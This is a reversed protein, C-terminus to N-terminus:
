RRGSERRKRYEQKYWEVAEQYSQHPLAKRSFSLELEFPGAPAEIEDGAAEIPRGNARAEKLELFYPVHVVVREPEHRWEPSFRMRAWGESFSLEYSVKGFPTPAGTVKVADGPKAWQPSLASCLHLEGEEERVLMNRFLLNFCAAYWGHPPFNCLQYVGAEICYDRGDWPFISWEFGEHCSGTHLLMGYFDRVALEQEGRMLATQAIRETIYHHLSQQWMAIREKMRRRRVYEFTNSVLPDRPDMVRGPYVALLNGWDTGGPVDLGPPIVGGREAAVERLRRMFNQRYSEGLGRFAECRHGGGAAECLDAAASLGTLAWFNHGTYRGLIMENDFADTPPMLGWEDEELARELWGVAREVYPLAEEAFEEDGTYRVHTGLAWMAQGWGDLQGRQSVFNGDDRQYDFFHRCLKEAVEPQGWKEYMSVFFSSDRLWFRNYQFRNVHQEVENDSIIDQSMLAHIVYSRSAHVVKDESVEFRAGRDLWGEWYAEFAALREDFDAGALRDEMAAEAPYHPVAFDAYFEEGPGLGRQYLAICAPKDGRSVLFPRDYEKGPGQFLGDPKQGFAYIIRGGRLAARGTMRYRWFPSWKVQRMQPSRHDKIGYMFGGGLQATRPSASTNKASIRIFNVPLAGPSGGELPFQFARVTYTVGDREFSYQVCPLYGKYLTWIRQSVPEGAAFPVWEAAGTWLHGDVVQTAFPEGRIGLQISPRLFYSFVPGRDIAPDAMPKPLADMLLNILGNRVKTNLLDLPRARPRDAAPAGTLAFALLAAAASLGLLAHKKRSMSKM